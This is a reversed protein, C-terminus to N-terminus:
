VAAAWVSPFVASGALSRYHKMLHLLRIPLYRKMLLIRKMQHHLIGPFQKPLDPPM